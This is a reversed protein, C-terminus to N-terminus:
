AVMGHKIARILDRLRQEEKTGILNIPKKGAFRDNPTNLWSDPDALITGVENKLDDVEDDFLTSAALPLQHRIFFNALGEALDQPNTMPLLHTVNPLVFEEVQPLWKRVMEHAERFLPRSDAGLVALVPQKIRQADKLPFSWMLGAPVEIQFFVDADRVALDFANPSLAQDIVERYGQGCVLRLFTDIAEVKKGEEYMKQVSTEGKEIFQEKILQVGSPVGEGLMLPPELLALSHVSEPADLALQLAILGGYDYGVIHARNINLHRLLALCHEAQQAISVPPTLRTSGDFGCRYYRIIRYHQTLLPAKLLPALGDALISGHVLVVPEGLGQVEFQLNVGNINATQM